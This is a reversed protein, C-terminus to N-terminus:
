RLAAAQDAWRSVPIGRNLVDTQEGTPLTVNELLEVSGTHLGVIYYEGDEFLAFLPAGSAGPNTDCTHILSGALDGEPAVLLVSCDASLGATEGPDGLGSLSAPPFDGSYGAVSIKGAAEALTTEDTFDVTRWGLYGYREGLPQDLTLLAWDETQNGTFPSDGYDYAVVQGVEESQGQIVNPRFVLTLQTPEDTAEDILCHANTLVLSPGILTGTCSGLVTGEADLWDVRGIASWPYQRSLVPTRNDENVIARIPGDVPRNSPVQGEPVYATGGIEAEPLAIPEVRVEHPRQALLPPTLVTTLLGLIVLSFWRHIM